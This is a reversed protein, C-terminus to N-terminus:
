YFATEKLQQVSSEIRRSYFTFNWVRSCDVLFGKDTYRDRLSVDGAFVRPMQM